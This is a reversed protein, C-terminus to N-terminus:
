MLLPVSIKPPTAMFEALSRTRPLIREEPYLATYRTKREVRSSTRAEMWRVGIPYKFNLHSTEFFPSIGRSTTRVRTMKKERRSVTIISVAIDM